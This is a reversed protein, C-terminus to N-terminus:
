KTQFIEAQVEHSQAAKQKQRKAHKPGVVAEATQGGGPRDKRLVPEVESPVLGRATKTKTRNDWPDFPVLPKGDPAVSNRIMTAQVSRVRAAVLAPDQTRVVRSVPVELMM